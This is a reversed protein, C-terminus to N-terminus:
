NYMHKFEFDPGIETKGIQFLMVYDAIELYNVIFELEKQCIYPTLFVSEQIKIFGLEKLKSRFMDRAQKKKNPIDFIVMRIKGDRKKKLNLDAFNYQLLKLKGRDSLEIITQGNVEGIKVLEQKHLRKVIRGIDGRKYRQWKKHLYGYAIAINPIALASIVVGSVALIQLTDKTTLKEQSM